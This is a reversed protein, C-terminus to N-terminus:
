RTAVPPLPAAQLGALSLARPQPWTRPFRLLLPPSRSAPPRRRAPAPRYSPSASRPEFAGSFRRANRRLVHVYQHHRFSPAHPTVSRLAAQCARPSWRGRSTEFPSRLDRSEEVRLRRKPRSAKESDGCLRWSPAVTTMPGPASARPPRRLRPGTSSPLAAVTHAVSSRLPRLCWRVQTKVSAEM